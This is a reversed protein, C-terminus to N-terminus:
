ALLPRDDGVAWRGPFGVWTPLQDGPEEVTSALEAGARVVDVHVVDGAQRVERFWALVGLPYPDHRLSASSARPRGCRSRCWGSLLRVRTWRTDRARFGNLLNRGLAVCRSRQLCTCRQLDCAFLAM